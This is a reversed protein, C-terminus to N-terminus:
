EEEGEAKEFEMWSQTVPADSRQALIEQSLEVM